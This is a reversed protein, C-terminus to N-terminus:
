YKKQKSIMRIYKAIVWEILRSFLDSTNPIGIRNQKMLRLIQSKSLGSGDLAVLYIDWNGNRDSYFLIQKGDPSWSGIYNRYIPGEDAIHFSVLPVVILLWSIKEIIAHQQVRERIKRYFFDNM